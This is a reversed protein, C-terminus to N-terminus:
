KVKKIENFDQGLVLGNDTMWQKFGSLKPFHDKKFKYWIWCCPVSQSM